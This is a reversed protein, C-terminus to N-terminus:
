GNQLSHAQQGHSDPSHIGIAPKLCAGRALTSPAYGSHHTSPCGRSKGRDIAGGAM